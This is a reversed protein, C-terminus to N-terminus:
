MMTLWHQSQMQPAMYCTCGANEQFLFKEDNYIKEIQSATPATASIRWLAMSGNLPQTYDWKVGFALTQNSATINITNAASAELRGNVWMELTGARRVVCVFDLRTSLAQSTSILSQTSVGSKMFFQWFGSLNESLSYRFDASSDARDLVVRDATASSVWGMVCFDGTGFDLDSNYPQELYNSASFGSYAVLDAGTAVATRTVTGNVILGNDNVSRDADALKLRIYNLVAVDPAGTNRFGIYTSTTTAVFTYAQVGTDSTSFPTIGTVDIRLTGTLSVIDFEVVYTQGVVTTVTQHMDYGTAEGNRDITLEGSAVSFQITTSTTSWNTPPTSGSAGTWDEGNTVLEGSGVLDTDDTDSLFAGKIDGVMYGTNYDATTYAVMGNAPTAPDEKLHVIGHETAGGGVGYVLAGDTRAIVDTKGTSANTGPRAPISTQDFIFDYTSSDATLISYKQWTKYAVGGGAGIALGNESIDVTYVIGDSAPTWDWVNDTGVGDWGIQSTGGNTAVAITPVPLGTAADIPANPLVTMAVDNVFANVLGTSGDLAISQGTNRFSISQVPFAYGATTKVFCQESIFDLRSFGSDSSGVALVGNQMAISSVTTARVLLNNATNFVMWMPLSPDDGDYITVKAAEAVIVAVAPFERRSGRTATNLTENYWSTGQTRKRWAGGDSDLSTDYVFVDVATVAKSTAIAALDITASTLDNEVEVTNFTPNRGFVGGNQKITM